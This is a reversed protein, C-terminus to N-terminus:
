LLEIQEFFKKRYSGGIPIKKDQIIVTNGMITQIHNLGVIYSRHVRIFDPLSLKEEMANMTYHIVFRKSQSHISVYERMSEVYLIDELPVKEM